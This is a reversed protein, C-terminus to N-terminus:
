LDCNSQWYVLVTRTQCHQTHLVETNVNVGSRSTRSGIKEYNWRKTEVVSNETMCIVTYASHIHKVNVKIKIVTWNKQSPPAATLAESEANSHPECEANNINVQSWKWAITQYLLTWRGVRCLPWTPSSKVSQMVWGVTDCCQLVLPWLLKVFLAERPAWEGWPTSIQVM